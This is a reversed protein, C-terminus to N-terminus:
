KIPVILQTMEQLAQSQRQDGLENILSQLEVGQLWAEISLRIFRNSM